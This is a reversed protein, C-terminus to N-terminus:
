KFLFTPGFVQYMHRFAKVRQGMKYAIPRHKSMLWLIGVRIVIAHVVSVGASCFAAVVLLLLIFEAARIVGSSQLLIVIEYWYYEAEYREYMWGYLLLPKKPTYCKDNPSAAMYNVGNVDICKFASLNYKLLVLFGINLFNLPVACRELMTDRLEKKDAPVDLIAMLVQKWPAESALRLSAAARRSRSLGAQKIRFIIYTTLCWIGVLAAMMLPLLLQVVLNHAFEWNPVLCSPELSDIEFSLISSLSMVQYLERPWNLSFGVVISLLQAFNVITMLNEVTRAFSLNVVIWLMALVLLYGVVNSKRFYGEDCYTCMRGRYGEACKFNGSCVSAAKCSICPAFDDDGRYTGAPCVPAYRNPQPLLLPRTASSLPLVLSPKFVYQLNETTLYTQLTVPDYGRNMRFRNFNVSGYFTDLQSAAALYTAEKNYASKYKAAYSPSDGWFADKRPLDPAWQAFSMVGVSLNGVNDNWERTYAGGLFVIAKLPKRRQDILWAMDSSEGKLGCMILAEASSSALRDAIASLTANTSNSYPMELSVTLLQQNAWEVANQCATNLELVDERYAVAVKYVNNARFESFLERTYQANDVSIRVVLKIGYTYYTGNIDRISLGGNANIAKEWLMYGALKLM